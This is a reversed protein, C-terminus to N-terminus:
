LGPNADSMCIDGHGTPGNDTTLSEMIEEDDEDHVSKLVYGSENLEKLAEEDWTECGNEVSNMYEIQNEDEDNYFFKIDLYTGFDHPCHALLFRTGEPNEGLVRTLQRIYAHAELKSMEMYDKTFNLQACKEGSPTTTALFISDTM